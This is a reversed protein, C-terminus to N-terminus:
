WWESYHSLLEEYVYLSEADTWYQTFM